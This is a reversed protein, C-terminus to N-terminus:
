VRDCPFQPRNEGLVGYLVDLRVQAETQMLALPANIVVNACKQNLVHAYGETTRAIAAKIEEETKM